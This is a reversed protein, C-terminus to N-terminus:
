AFRKFGPRAMNRFCVCFTKRFHPRVQKKLPSVAFLGEECTWVTHKGAGGHLWYHCYAYQHGHSASRDGHKVGHTDGTFVVPLGGTGLVHQRRTTADNSHVAM